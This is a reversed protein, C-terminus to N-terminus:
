KGLRKVFLMRSARSKGYRAYKQSILLTVPNHAGIDCHRWDIAFVGQQTQYGEIFVQAQFVQGLKAGHIRRVGTELIGEIFHLTMCGDQSDKFVHEHLDISGAEDYKFAHLLISLREQGPFETEVHPTKHRSLLTHTPCRMHTEIHLPAYQQM